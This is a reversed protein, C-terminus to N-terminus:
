ARSRRLWARARSRGNSPVAGGASASRLGAAVRGGRQVLPSLARGCCPWRNFIVCRRCRFWRRARGAHNPTLERTRITSWWGLKWRAARAAPRRQPGSTRTPARPCCAPGRAVAGAAPLELLALPNGRAEAVLQDAIREDFRRPLASALLTRAAFGLAQASARDLWQADDIVCVMPREQAAESLLNLTAAGELFFLCRWAVISDYRAVM